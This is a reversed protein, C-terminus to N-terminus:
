WIASMTVNPLSPFLKLLSLSKPNSLSLVRLEPTLNDLPASKNVLFVPLTVLKRREKTDLDKSNIQLPDGLNALNIPLPRSDKPDRITLCKSLGLINVLIDALTLKAIPTLAPVAPIPANTIPAAWVILMPADIALPYSLHYLIAPTNAFSSTDSSILHIQANALPRSANNNSTIPASYKAFIRNSANPILKDPIFALALCATSSYLEFGTDWLSPCGARTSFTWSYLSLTSLLVKKSPRLSLPFPIISPNDLTHCLIFFVALLIPLLIQFFPPSITSLALSIADLAASATPLVTDLPAVATLFKKVPSSLELPSLGLPLNPVDLNKLCVSEWHVLLGKLIYPSVSLCVIPSLPQPGTAPALAINARPLPLSGLGISAELNAISLLKM